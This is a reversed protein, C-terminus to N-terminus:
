TAGGGAAKTGLEAESTVFWLACAVMAGSLALVGVVRAPAGRRRTGASASTKASM